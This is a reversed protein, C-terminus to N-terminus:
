FYYETKSLHFCFVKIYGLYPQTVVSTLTNHYQRWLKLTMKVDGEGTTLEKKLEMMINTMYQDMIAAYADTQNRPVKLQVERVEFMNRPLDDRCPWKKRCGPIMLCILILFAKM